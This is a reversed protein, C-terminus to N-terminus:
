NSGRLKSYGEFMKAIDYNRTILYAFRNEFSLKKKKSNLSWKIGPIGTSLWTILFAIYLFFELKKVNETPVTPSKQIDPTSESNSKSEESKSKVINDPSNPKFYRVLINDFFAVCKLNDDTQQNNIETIKEIIEKKNKYYTMNCMQNIAFFTGTRDQGSKCHYALIFEDNTTASENLLLFVLSIFCFMYYRCIERQMDPGYVSIEKNKNLLDPNKNTKIEEKFVSELFNILLKKIYKNQTNNYIIWFISIGNYIM